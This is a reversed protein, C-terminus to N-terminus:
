FLLIMMLVVPLSSLSKKNTSSKGRIKFFKILLLLWPIKLKTEPLDFLITEIAFNIPFKISLFM